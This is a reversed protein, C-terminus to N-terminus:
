LSASFSQTYALIAPLSHCLTAPALCSCSAPFSAPALPTEQNLRVTLLYVFLFAEREAGLQWTLPKPTGNGTLSLRLPGLRVHASMRPPRRHRSLGGAPRRRRRATRHPATRGGGLFFCGAVRNGLLGRQGKGEARQGRGDPEALRLGSDQGRGWGGRRASTVDHRPRRAPSSSFCGRASTLAPSGARLPM